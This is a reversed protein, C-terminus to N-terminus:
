DCFKDISEQALAKKEARKNEDWYEREGDKNVDYVRGAQEVNRMNAQAKKCKAIREDRKKAKETAVKSQEARAKEIAALREQPTMPKEKKGNEKTKAEAAEKEAKPDLKAPSLSKEKAFRVDYERIEGNPPTQSFHTKGHKDVWRYVKAAHANIAVVLGLLLFIIFYIRFKPNQAM